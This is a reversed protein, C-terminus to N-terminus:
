DSISREVEFEGLEGIQYAHEDVHDHGDSFGVDSSELDNDVKQPVIDDAPIEPIENMKQLNNRKLESIDVSIQM